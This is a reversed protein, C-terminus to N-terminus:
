FKVNEEKRTYTRAFVDGINKVFYTQSFTMVVNGIDQLIHPIGAASTEWSPKNFGSFQASGIYEDLFSRMEKTSCFLFTATTVVALVPSKMFIFVVAVAVTIKTLWNANKVLEKSSALFVGGAVAAIIPVAIPLVTGVLYNSSRYLVFIPLAVFITQQLSTGLYERVPRTATNCANYAKEAGYRINHIM